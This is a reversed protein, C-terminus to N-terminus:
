GVHTYALRTAADVVRQGAAIGGRYDEVEWRSWDRSSVCSFGVRSDDRSERGGGVRGDNADVIAEAGDVAIGSWHVVDQCAVVPYGLM